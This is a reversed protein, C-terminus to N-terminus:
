LKTTNVSKQAKAAEIAKAKAAEIAKAKAAEIAKAKAAEIANAKATEIAKAKATEIAKAKAAEIANAKATEIAKIKAIKIVKAAEIAKIKVAEAASENLSSCYLISVVILLLTNTIIWVWIYSNRKTDIYNKERAKIEDENIIKDLDKKDLLEKYRDRIESFKGLLRDRDSNIEFISIGLYIFSVAILLLSIMFVEFSFAGTFTGKNVVRLLFVTIFFTTFTWLGTKFMSFMSKTMELAKDSQGQIFEAIRNKIAIYEKVNERLYLDYGSRVSDSTGIEISLLTDDELHISIINRALGIKDTYNGELYTWEYINNLENSNNNILKDFSISESLLKYGKIRYKLINGDVSSFDSLYIILLANFLGNFYEALDSNNTVCAKFDDPIFNFQAANAFHGCKDRKEIRNARDDECIATLKNNSNSKDIPYVSQFAISETTFPEIDEWVNVKLISSFDFENWIDFNDNLTLKQIHKFFVPFNFIDFHDVHDKDIRLEINVDENDIYELQDTILEVKESIQDLSSSLIRVPDTVEITLTFNVGFHGLTSLHKLLNESLGDLAVSSKFTHKSEYLSFNEVISVENLEGFLELIEKAISM